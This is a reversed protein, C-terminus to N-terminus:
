HLMNYDSFNNIEHGYNISIQILYGTIKLKGCRYSKKIFMFIDLQSVNIFRKLQM